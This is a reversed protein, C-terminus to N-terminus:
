TVHTAQNGGLSEPREPPGPICKGGESKARLKQQLQFPETKPSDRERMHAAETRSEPAESTHCM